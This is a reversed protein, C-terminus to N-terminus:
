DNRFVDQTDCANELIQKLKAEAKPRLERLTEFPICNIEALKLLDKDSILSETEVMTHILLDVVSDYRDSYLTSIVTTELNKTSHLFPDHDEINAPYMVGFM